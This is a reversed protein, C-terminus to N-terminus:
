KGDKAESEQVKVILVNMNKRATKVNALLSVKEVPIASKVREM